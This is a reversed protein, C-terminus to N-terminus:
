ACMISEETPAIQNSTDTQIPPSWYNNVTTEM